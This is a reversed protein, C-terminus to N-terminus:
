GNTGMESIKKTGDTSGPEAKLDSSIDQAKHEQVMRIAGFPVIVDKETLICDKCVKKIKAYIHNDGPGKLSIMLMKGKLREIEKGFSM